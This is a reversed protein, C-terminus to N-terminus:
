HASPNWLGALRVRARTSALLLSVGAAVLLVAGLWPGPTDRTLWRLAASVLLFAFALAMYGSSMRAPTGSTAQLRSRPPLLAQLGYMCAFLAFAAVQPAQASRGEMWWGSLTWAALPPILLMLLGGVVLTWIAHDSSEHRLKRLGRWWFATAACATLTLIIEIPAHPTAQMLRNRARARTAHLLISEALM